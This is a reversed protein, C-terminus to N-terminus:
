AIQPAKKEPSPEPSLPAVPGGWADYMALINLLGAILTYVTGLEFFPGMRLNWDSTQNFPERPNNADRLKPSAEFGDTMYTVYERPRDGRLDPFDSQDCEGQKIQSEAWAAPVKQGPLLPPAMFGGFLPAKPRDGSMRIAQVIAPLAPLGVCVQCAYAYRQDNTRMSAYVVKGEGMWLGAVFTGLICVMFLGGKGWRRQYFHGAGPILWALFAALYPDRLEIQPPGAAPVPTETEPTVAAGSCATSPVTL